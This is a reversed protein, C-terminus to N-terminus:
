LLRYLVRFETQIKQFISEQTSMEVFRKVKCETSFLHDLEILLGKEEFYSRSNRVPIPIFSGTKDNYVGGKIPNLALSQKLMSDFTAFFPVFFKGHAVSPIFKEMFQPKAISWAIDDIKQLLRHKSMGPRIKALEPISSSKSFFEYALVAERDLYVGLNNEIADFYEKIKFKARRRTSHQIRLIVICHLLVHRQTLLFSDIINKNDATCYFEFVTDISNRVADNFSYHFRPGSTSRFHECDVGRFLELSVLQQKFSKDLKRWFSLKTDHDAMGMNRVNRISEYLYLLYNFNLGDYVLNAIFNIFKEEIEGLPELRMLKNIYHAMNADFMISHDIPLDQVGQVRVQQLLPDSLFYLRDSVFYPVVLACKGQSYKRLSPPVIGKGYHAMTVIAKLDPHKSKLCMWSKFAEEPSSAKGLQFLCQRIEETINV